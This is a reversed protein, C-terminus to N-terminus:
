LARLIKDGHQFWLRDTFSQIAPRPAYPFYIRGDGMHVDIIGYEGEKIRIKVVDLLPRMLRHLRYYDQVMDRVQIGSQEMLGDANSPNNCTAEQFRMRIEDIQMCVQQDKGINTRLVETAM